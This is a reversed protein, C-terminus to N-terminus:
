SGAGDGIAAGYDREIEHLEVMVYPMLGILM